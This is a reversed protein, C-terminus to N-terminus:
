QNQLFLKLAFRRNRERAEANCATRARRLCKTVRGWTELPMRESRLDFLLTELRLSSLTQVRAMLVAALESNKM